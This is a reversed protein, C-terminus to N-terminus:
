LKRAPTLKSDFVDKSMTRQVIRGREDEIETRRVKDPVTETRQEAVKRLGMEEKVRVDKAVIAEEAYGEAELTRDTSTVGAPAAARDVPHREIEVREDSLVLDGFADRAGVEAHVRISSGTPPLLRRFPARRAKVKSGLSSPVRGGMVARERLKVINEAASLILAAFRAPDVKDSPRPGTGLAGFARAPDDAVIDLLARVAPDLSTRGQEWNRWTKVPVRLRAAIEAQTLGVRERIEAPSHIRRLGAMTDAPDFGDEVNFRAIDEETLADARAADIRGRAAAAELTKRVIAM